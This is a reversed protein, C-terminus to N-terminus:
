RHLPSVKAILRALQSQRNIGLRAYVQKLMSRATEDSVKFLEAAEKLSHGAGVALAFRAQGRTLGLAVLVQDLSPYGSMDPKLVLLVVAPEALGLRQDAVQVGLFVARVLLPLASGPRPLALVEPPSAQTPSALAQTIYCDLRTQLAPQGSVLRGRRIMLGDAELGYLLSNSRLLKGGKSVVAVACDFRALQDVLSRNLTEAANLRFSLTAARALHRGLAAFREREQQPVFESHRTRSAGLGLQMGEYPRLILSLTSSMGLSRRFDQYFPDRARVDAAIYDTDVYFGAGPRHRLMYALWPDRGVWESAYASAAHAISPSYAVLPEGGGMQVVNVGVCDFATAMDQLLDPWGGADFATDYCREILTSFAAEEM